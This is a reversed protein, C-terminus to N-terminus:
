SLSGSPTREDCCQIAMASELANSDIVYSLQRCRSLGEDGGLGERGSEDAM